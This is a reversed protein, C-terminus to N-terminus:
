RPSRAIQALIRRWGARSLNLRITVLVYAGHYRLVADASDVLRADYGPGSLKDGSNVFETRWAAGFGRVPSAATLRIERDDGLGVRAPNSSYILVGLRGSDPGLFRVLMVEALKLGALRAGPSPVAFRVGRRLAGVNTGYDISYTYTKESWDPKPVDM